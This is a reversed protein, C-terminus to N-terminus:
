KKRGVFYVGGLIAVGLALGAYPIVAVVKAIELTNKAIQITLDKLVALIESMFELLSLTDSWVEEVYDAIIHTPLSRINVRLDIISNVLQVVETHVRDVENSVEPNLQFFAEGCPIYWEKQTANLWKQGITLAAQLEVAAKTAADKEAAAVITIGIPGGIISAAAEILANKSFDKDTDRVVRIRQAIHSGAAIVGKAAETLTASVEEPAVEVAIKCTIKEAQEVKEPSPEPQSFALISGGVVMGAGATLLMTDYPASISRSLFLAGIGGVGLAVSVPLTNLNVTQGLRKSSVGLRRTKRLSSALMSPRFPARYPQRQTGSFALTVPRPIAASQRFASPAGSIVTLGEQAM